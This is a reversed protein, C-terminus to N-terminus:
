TASNATIRLILLRQKSVNTGEQLEKMKRGHIELIDTIKTRNDSLATAVAQIHLELNQFGEDQKISM